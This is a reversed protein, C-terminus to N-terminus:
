LLRSWDSTYRRINTIMNGVDTAADIVRDLTDVNENRNRRNVVSRASRITVEDTTWDATNKITTGLRFRELYFQVDLKLLSTHENSMQITSVNYPFCGVARWQATIKNDRIQGVRKNGDVFRTVLNSGPQYKNILIDSTYKDYFMSRNETDRSIGNMWREFFNRHWQNKTIIFQINLDTPTQQTAYRRMSGFNTVEGSMMNRSPVTVQDAFFDIATYYSDAGGFENLDYVLFPPISIMVTYMNSRAPEFAGTAVTDKFRTFSIGM